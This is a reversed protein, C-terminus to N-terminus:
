AMCCEKGKCACRISAHRILMPTKIIEQSSKCLHAIGEIWAEDLGLAPCRFALIGQSRIPPLYLKEIEFLTEIHDSTFSLPVIVVARRSAMAEPLKEVIDQTYPQLWVEPGFKSQYSLLSFAKPFFACLAKFSQECEQQYVDGQCVFSRPIGHASFLLSVEEEQLQNDQLFKRIKKQFPQIFGEHIPYSRIWSLNQFSNGSRNQFLRAISGTTAYSFQPFLPFALLKKGNLKKLREFFPEHTAPLYRHFALVPVNLKEQLAKALNETDEFISSKGGIELYDAQIKKARKKAIRTFLRRHLWPFLQSRVVDTDSLLAILFPEIEELDRPGGFNTLLLADFGEPM